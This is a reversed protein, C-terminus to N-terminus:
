IWLSPDAPVLLKAKDSFPFIGCKPISHEGYNVDTELLAFFFFQAQSKGEKEAPMAAFM